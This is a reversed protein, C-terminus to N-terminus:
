TLDKFLLQFENKLKRQEQKALRGLKKLVIASDITVIKSLRILSPAPLGASVLDDIVLDHPFKLNSINSTVMAVILHLNYARPKFSGLVVCPRKKANSLDTFPFPVYIIDFTTM